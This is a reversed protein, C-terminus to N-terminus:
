IGQPDCVLNIFSKTCHRTTLPRAGLSRTNKAVSHQAMGRQASSHQHEAGHLVSGGPASAPAIRRERRMLRAATSALLRCLKCFSGQQKAGGLDASPWVLDGPCLCLAM